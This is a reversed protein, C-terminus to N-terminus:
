RPWATHVGHSIRPGAVLHENLTLLQPITALLYATRSGLTFWRYTLQFCLSMFELLPELVHSYRDPNAVAIGEDSMELYVHLAGAPFRVVTRYLWILRRHM